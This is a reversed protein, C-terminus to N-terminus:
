RYVALMASDFRALQQQKGSDLVSIIQSAVNLLNKFFAVWCSCDVDQFASLAHQPPHM